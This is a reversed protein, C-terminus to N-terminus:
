KDDIVGKNDQTYLRNEQLLCFILRISKRATLVLARKHQHSKVERFKSSYYNKFIPDNIRMRDAALCIYYRLYSDGTKRLKTDDAEYEGSQYQSWVLGCFKALSGDNKFRKINGIEAIIGLLLLLVM